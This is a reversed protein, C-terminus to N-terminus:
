YSKCLSTALMEPNDDPLNYLYPYKVPSSKPYLGCTTSFALNSYGRYPLTNLSPNSSFSLFPLSKSFKFINLTVM